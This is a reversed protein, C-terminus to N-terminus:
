PSENRREFVWTTGDDFRLRLQKQTTQIESGSQLRTLWSREIQQLAEDAIICRARTSAAGQLLLRNNKIMTHGHWRNCAVTGSARGKEALNLTFHPARDTLQTSAAKTTQITTQNQAAIAEVLQWNGLPMPTSASLMTCGGALLIAGSLAIARLVSFTPLNEALLHHKLPQRRQQAPKQRIRACQLGSPDPFM